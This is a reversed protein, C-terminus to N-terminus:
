GPKRSPRRSPLLFGPKDLVAEVLPLADSLRGLRFAAALLALYSEADRIGGIRCADLLVDFTAQDNMNCSSILGQVELVLGGDYRDAWEPRLMRELVAQMRDHNNDALKFGADLLWFSGVNSYKLLLFHHEDDVSFLSIPQWDGGPRPLRGDFDTVIRCSPYGM